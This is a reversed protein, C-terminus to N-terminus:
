YSLTEIRFGSKFIQFNECPTMNTELIFEHRDMIKFLNTNKDICDIYKNLQTEMTSPNTTM